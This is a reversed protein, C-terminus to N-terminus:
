RSQDLHRNRPLKFVCRKVNCESGEFGPLKRHGGGYKGPLQRQARRLARDEGRSALARATCQLIRWGHQNINQITRTSKHCSMQRVELSSDM